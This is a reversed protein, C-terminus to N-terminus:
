RVWRSDEIGPIQWDSESDFLVYTTGHIYWIKISNKPLRCYVRETDEVPGYPYRGFLERGGDLWKDEINDMRDSESIRGYDDKQFRQFSTHVFLNFDRDEEMLAAVADSAKVEGYDMFFGAYGHIKEPHKVGYGKQLTEHIKGPDQKPKAEIITKM